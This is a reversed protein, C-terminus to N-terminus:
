LVDLFHNLRYRSYLMHAPSIERLPEDLSWNRLQLWASKEIQSLDERQPFTEDIELSTSGSLCDHLVETLMTRSDSRISM